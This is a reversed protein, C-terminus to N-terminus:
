RECRSFPRSGQRIRIPRESVEAAFPPRTTKVASIGCVVTSTARRGSVAGSHPSPSSSSVVPSVGHRSKVGSSIISSM